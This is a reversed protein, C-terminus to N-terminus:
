RPLCSMVSLCTYYYYKVCYIGLFMLFLHSFCLYSMKILLQMYYSLEIYVSSVCQMLASVKESKNKYIYILLHMMCSIFRQFNSTMCCCNFKYNSYWIFSFLKKEIHTYYLDLFVCISMYLLYIHQEVM